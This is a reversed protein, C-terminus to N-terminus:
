TAQEEEARHFRSDLVCLFDSRSHLCSHWGLAKGMEGERHACPTSVGCCDSTLCFPMGLPPLGSGCCAGGGKLGGEGGSPEGKLLRLGSSGLMLVERAEVPSHTHSQTHSCAHCALTTVCMCTLHLRQTTSLAQACMLHAARECQPQTPKSCHPARAQQACAARKHRANSLACAYEHARLKSHTPLGQCLSSYM